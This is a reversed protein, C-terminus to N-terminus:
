LRSFTPAPRQMSHPVHVKAATDERRDDGSVITTPTQLESLFDERPNGKCKRRHCRKRTLRVLRLLLSELQLTLKGEM